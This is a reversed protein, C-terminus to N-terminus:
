LCGELFDILAGLIEKQPPSPEGDEESLLQQAEDGVNERYVKLVDVVDKLTKSKRNLM